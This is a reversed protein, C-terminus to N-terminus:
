GGLDYDCMMEPDINNNGTGLAQQGWHVMKDGNGVLQTVLNAVETQSTDIPVRFLAAEWWRADNPNMDQNPGTGLPLAREEHIHMDYLGATPASALLSARVRGGTSPEGCDFPVGTSYDQLHVGLSSVMTSRATRISTTGNPAPVNTLTVTCSTEANGSLAFGFTVSQGNQAPSLDQVVQALRVEANAVAQADFSMYWDGGASGDALYATKYTSVGNGDATAFDNAIIEGVGSVTSDCSIPNGAGDTLAIRVPANPPGTTPPPASTTTTTTTTTTPGPTVAACSGEFSLAPGLRIGNPAAGAGARDNSWFGVGRIVVDGTLESSSSASLPGCADLLASRARRMQTREFAADVCRPSPFEAIMTRSRDSRSAIVLDVAGDPRTEAEVVQARVEYVHEEAGTTRPTHASLARPPRKSRLGGVGISRSRLHVETRDPDSLTRVDSRWATCGAGAFATTAVSGGIGIASAVLALSLCAALGIIRKM